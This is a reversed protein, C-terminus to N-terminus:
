SYEYGIYRASTSAGLKVHDITGLWAEGSVYTHVYGHVCFCCYVDDLTRTPSAPAGIIQCTCM